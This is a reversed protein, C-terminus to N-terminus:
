SLVKEKSSKTWPIPTMPGTVWLANRIRASLDEPLRKQWWPSKTRLLLIWTSVSRFVMFTESLWSRQVRGVSPRESKQGGKKASAFTGDIFCEKVDIKGRKEMDKALATLIGEFVKARVWEQFRRHCTQYPPYDGKPLEQWQAGTRLIWLIGDLVDRDSVRPRGRGDKRPSPPILPAIVAWQEDSLYM